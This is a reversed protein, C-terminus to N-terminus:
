SAAEQVVVRYSIRCVHVPVGTKGMGAFARQERKRVIEFTGRPSALDSLTGFDFGLGQTATGGNRKIALVATDVDGLSPYYVEIVFAEVENTQREFGLSLVDQGEDKLVCYGATTPQVQVGLTNVVPAEDFYLVPLTANPFNAATLAAFKTISAAIISQTPM